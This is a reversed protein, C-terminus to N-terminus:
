PNWEIYRVLFCIIWGRNNNQPLFSGINLELIYNRLSELYNMFKSTVNTHTLLYPEHYSWFQLESCQFLEPIVAAESMLSRGHWGTDNPSTVASFCQTKLGVLEQLACALSIPPLLPPLPSFTLTMFVNPINILKNLLIYKFIIIIKQSCICSFSM